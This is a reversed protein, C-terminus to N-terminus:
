QPVITAELTMGSPTFNTVVTVELIQDVTKVAQTDPETYSVTCKITGTGTATPTFTGIGNADTTVTGISAANAGDYTASAVYKDKANAWTLEAGGEAVLVPTMVAKQADGMTQLQNAM